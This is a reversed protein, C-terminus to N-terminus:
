DRTRPEVVDIKEIFTELKENRDEAILTLHGITLPDLDVFRCAVVDVALADAGLVAKSGADVINLDPKVIQAIDAIVRDMGGFLHHRYYKRKKPVLGFLNKLACTLPTVRLTGVKAVNVLVNSELVTRPLLFKEVSHPNPVHVEVREDDTLDIARVRSGFRKLMPTVGLREFQESPQCVVTKTEGIVVREAKPLLLEVVSSLLDLSPHYVGCINPKVLALQVRELKFGVELSQEPLHDVAEKLDCVIVRCLGM